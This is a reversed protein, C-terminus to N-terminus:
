ALRQRLAAKASRFNRLGHARAARIDRELRDGDERWRKPTVRITRLGRAAAFSDRVRDDEFAHPTGHTGFTDIELILGADEWLGDVTYSGLPHNMSPVPLDRNRLWLVFERERESRLMDGGIAARLKAAGRARKRSALYARLRAVTTMRRAVATAVLRGVDEGEAALDLLTRAITTTRLGNALTVEDNRLPERASHIVLEPQPRVRRRSRVHIKATPAGAGLNAAATWHSLASDTGAYLLAAAWRAQPALSRYAVSYVRPFERKLKASTLTRTIAANSFGCSLLQETTVNGWQADAAARLCAYRQKREGFAENRV